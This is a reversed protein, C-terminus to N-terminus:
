ARGFIPRIRDGRCDLVLPGLRVRCSLSQKPVQLPLNAARDDGEKGTKPIRHRDAIFVDFHKLSHQPREIESGPERHHDILEGPPDPSAASRM